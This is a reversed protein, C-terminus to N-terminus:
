AARRLPEDKPSQTLKQQVAEFVREVSLNRMCDHHGLPCTRRQCPGCPLSEFLRTEGVHYNISWRPDTPGFLSVVPVNFAAAFHRPGSDTSVMIQARNVCAKSLGISLQEEALSFVRPHGAKRVISAAASREDPGCIVLM